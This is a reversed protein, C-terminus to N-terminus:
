RPEAPEREWTIHDPLSIEREVSWVFRDGERAWGSEEFFRLVPQNRLGEVFRAVMRQAGQARAAAWLRHAFAQEIGRGLARCSMLFTDLEVTELDDDVATLIALGITGYEGFRDRADVVYTEFGGGLSRVQELSRRRLSLNFQNTKQSLQAVRPLDREGAPRFDVHLDLERLYDELGGGAQKVQRREREQRIMRTRARDEDTATARDFLWLRGLTEAYREPSDPLPVVKVQPTRAAVELRRAPDDDFFVFSDIGLNLEEALQLLNESKDTWDIRWAAIDQRKLIMGPHNDFVEWVDAEENRSVLALLLGREKLRLLQRQFLQYGRGRGEPGLELGSLGDEAVVGGWLTGDCDLAVVKAQAAVGARRRVLRALEIGLEQYVAPSYPARAVVDFGASAAASTGVREVVSAFDVRDLGETAQLREAWRARLRDVEDRPADFGASVPPPLSAVALTAGSPERVFGEIAALLREASEEREAASAGPLDEPRVLVVNLGQPAERFPSDPALLAQAVQDFGCFRVRAEVGFARSWLKLAPALPEATFSAAIVVPLAALTPGDDQDRRALARTAVDRDLLPLMEPDDPPAPEREDAAPGAGARAAAAVDAVSRIAFVQEPSLQVGFGNFLAAGIAMQGLSDWQVCGDACLDVHVLKRRIGLAEAVLRQIEEDTAQRQETRAGSSVGTEGGERECKRLFTAPNGGWVEGPPIVTFPAVFSCLEVVAGNGITAGMGVFSEGGVVAAEGVRIPASAYALSGDPETVMTHAVLRANAGVVARRGIHTLDPDFVDGYLVVREGIDVSRAYTRFALTRLVPMRVFTAALPLGQLMAARRYMRALGMLKLIAPWGDSTSLRRPKPTRMTLQTDAAFLLILILLWLLYIAPAAAIWLAPSRVATFGTLHLLGATLAASLTPHLLLAAIEAVLILLRVM